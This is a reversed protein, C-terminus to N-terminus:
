SSVSNGTLSKLSVAHSMLLFALSPYSLTYKQVKDQFDAVHKKEAFARAKPNSLAAWGIWYKWIDSLFLGALIVFFMNPFYSPNNASLSAAYLVAADEQVFPGIFVSIYMALPSDTLFDM